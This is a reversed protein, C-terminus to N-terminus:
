KEVSASNTVPRGVVVGSALDPSTQSGGVQPLSPLGFGEPCCCLAGCALGSVTTALVATCLLAVTAISKITFRECVWKISDECSFECENGNLRCCVDEEFCGCVHDQANCEFDDCLMTFTSAFLFSLLAGFYLLGSGIGEVVATAILYCKGSDDQKCIGGVVGCFAGSIVLAGGLFAPFGISLLSANVDNRDKENLSVRGGVGCKIDDIKGLVIIVGMLSAWVAFLVGVISLYAIPKTTCCPRGEEVAAAMGHVFVM